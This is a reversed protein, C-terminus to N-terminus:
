RRSSRTGQRYGDEYGQRFGDRYSNRYADRSGYSGSYGSEGDRYQRYRVPDYRDGRRGDEFGRRYGESQGRSFAPDQYGRRVPPAQVVVSPVTRAAAPSVLVLATLLVTLVQRLRM